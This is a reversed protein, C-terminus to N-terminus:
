PTWQSLTANPRSRFVYTLLALGHSCPMLCIAYGVVKAPWIMDPMSWLWAGLRVSIILFIFSLFGALCRAWMEGVNRNLTILAISGGCQVPACFVIVIILLLIIGEGPAFFCATFTLACLIANLAVFAKAFM